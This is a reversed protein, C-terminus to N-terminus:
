CDLQYMNMEQRMQRRVTRADVTRMTRCMRRAMPMRERLTARCEATAAVSYTAYQM